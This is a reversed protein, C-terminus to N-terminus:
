DSGHFVFTLIYLEHENADIGETLLKMAESLLGIRPLNSIKHFLFKSINTVLDLKLETGLILWNM